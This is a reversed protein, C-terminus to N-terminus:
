EIISVGKTNIETVYTKFDINLDKYIRTMEKEINKAIEMSTSLMFISPGSGSIGGGIAGASYSCIKVENFGPILKSRYPEILNDKLSNGILDYDYKMFGAVLGAVNGWHIVADKLLIEKPLIARAESTKIEIQPHVVTVFFEPVNLEIIDLPNNSRILCIGGYICPAVNDAHKSGGALEEGYMAFEVLQNKTFHNNLLHNAAVVAGAASAASSGLGSGPKIIKNITLTFGIPKKYANILAQLAVGVVNKKPETSLNFQDLHKIKIVPEDILEVEMIDQPQNIAMGLVDFGCVLNAVTAPAHVIVKKM